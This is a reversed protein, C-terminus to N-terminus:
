DRHSSPITSCISYCLSLALMGPALIEQKSSEAGNDPADSSDVLGRDDSQDERRKRAAIIKQITAQVGPGLQEYIESIEQEREEETMNEVKRQNEESMQQRWEGPDPKIQTPPSSLDPAQHMGHESSVTSSTGLPSHSIVKQVEKTRGFVSKSRHEVGPFGNKTSRTFPAARGVPTREIVAGVLPKDSM